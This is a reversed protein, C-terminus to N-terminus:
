PNEREPASGGTEELPRRSVLVSGDRVEIGHRRLCEGKPNIGQGSTADFSWEHARCILTSGDLDGEVLSVSQHPCIGHYAYHTGDVKVVLVETGDVEYSEMEGDWLEDDDAVEVYDTDLDTSGGAM